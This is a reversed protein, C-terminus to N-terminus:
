GKKIFYRTVGDDIDTMGLFENGNKNAWAPIDNKSGPDNGLIELDGPFLCGFQNAQEPIAKVVVAIEATIEKFFVDRGEEFMAALNETEEPM